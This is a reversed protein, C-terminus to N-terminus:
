KNKLEDSFDEQVISLEDIKARIYIEEEDLEQLYEEVSYGLPARHYQRVDKRERILFELKDYLQHLCVNDLYDM